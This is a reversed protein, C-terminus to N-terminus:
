RALMKAYKSWGHPYGGIQTEKQVMWSLWGRASIIEYDREVEEMTMARVFTKNAYKHAREIKKTMGGFKMDIAM